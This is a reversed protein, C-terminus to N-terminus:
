FSLTIMGNLLQSYISYLLTSSHLTINYKLTTIIYARTYSRNEITVLVPICIGLISFSLHVM